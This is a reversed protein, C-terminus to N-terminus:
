YLKTEVISLRFLLHSQEWRGIKGVAVKVCFTFQLLGTELRKYCEKQPAHKFLVFKIRPLETLRASTRFSGFGFETTKTRLRVVGVSRGGSTSTLALKLPLHRTTLV